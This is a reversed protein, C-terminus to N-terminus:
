EPQQPKQGGRHYKILSEFKLQVLRDFNALATDICIVQNIAAVSVTSCFKNQTRSYHIGEETSFRASFIM